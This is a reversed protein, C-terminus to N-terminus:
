LTKYMLQFELRTSDFDINKQFHIKRYKINDKYLVSDFLKLEVFEYSEPDNMRSTLYEEVNNRVIEDRSLPKENKCSTLCLLLYISIHTVMITKNTM